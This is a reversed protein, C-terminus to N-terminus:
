AIDKIFAIIEKKELEEAESYVKLLVPWFLPGIM